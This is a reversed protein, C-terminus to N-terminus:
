CYRTRKWHNLAELAANPPVVEVVYKGVVLVYDGVECPVDVIAAERKEMDYDITAKNRRIAVVKGPIQLCM